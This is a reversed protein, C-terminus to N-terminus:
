PQLEKMLTEVAEKILPWDSPVISVEGPQSQDHIQRLKIYEGAAEDEIDIHTVSESFIPEGEPAITLRTVRIKFPESM